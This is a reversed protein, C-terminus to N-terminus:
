VQPKRDPPPGNRLVVEIMPARVHADYDDRHAHFWERNNNRKLARLFTVTRVSFSPTM